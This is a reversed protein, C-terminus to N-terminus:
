LIEFIYDKPNRRLFRKEEDEEHSAKLHSNKSIGIEV